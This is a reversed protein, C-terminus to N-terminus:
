DCLNLWQCGPSGCKVLAEVGADAMITLVEDRADAAAAYRAAAAADTAAYRAAATAAYRAAAAAATAAYRAAAAATAATAAYRAAAAATATGECKECTAAASEMAKRHLEQPHIKAAARLAIPVIKRVAALAVEKVFLAQDISESGLQAIALRRLGRARAENSSWQSDNLTIKFSRVAPAVCPPDDSHPLGMACCVAAEVCMKGPVQEGLGHCLGHSLLDLIKVATERTPVSATIKM